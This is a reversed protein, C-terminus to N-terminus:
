SATVRVDLSIVTLTEGENRVALFNRGNRLAAAPIAFVAQVMGATTGPFPRVSTCGAPVQNLDIWLEQAQPMKDGSLLIDVEVQASDPEAALLLLFLRTHNPEIPVPVQTPGDTELPWGSTITYTKPLRCLTDLDHLERLTAFSPEQPTSEWATERACFFNFFEVGDAGAARHGAAFGRILCPETPLTRLPLDARRDAPYDTCAFIAVHNGVRNRFEDVPIAWQTNLFAGAAIGDVLREKAWAAVDFGFEYAGAPTAAVRATLAITKGTANLRARVDRIFGTMIAAHRAFDGRPFYCQFRLFDLELVDFNYHEALEDILSLFHARVAAQEYNFGRAGWGCRAPNNLWLEPHDLYFRNFLHTGPTPADHMDNMRITIGPRIGKRRCRALSRALYDCGNEALHKMQAVWAERAPVEADPVPGFFERRGPAYGDWFTQWVRSPYCVRQANPNILLVQAGGDAVEDVMRDVHAPTVPEKTTAFLNTCDQNYIVRCDKLM